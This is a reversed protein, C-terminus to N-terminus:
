PRSKISLVGKDSRLFWLARADCSANEKLETHTHVLVTHIGHIYTSTIYNVQLRTNTVM